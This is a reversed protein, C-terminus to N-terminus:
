VFFSEKFLFTTFHMLAGRDFALVYRAMGLYGALLTCISIIRRTNPPLKRSSSIYGLIVGYFLVFYDKERTLVIWNSFLTFIPLTFIALQISLEAKKGFSLINDYFIISLFFIIYCELTHILSIPALSETWGESKQAYGIIDIVFQLIGSIDVASRILITPAFILMYLLINKKSIPVLTSFYLPFLILAGRHILFAFCCCIFYKISDKELIFHLSYCFIALTMGQRISIFTNYFMLKYIFIAIFASWDEVFYKIGNFLLLYFIIAYILIFGFYSFHLTRFFSCIFLFGIEYNYEYGEILGYLLNGLTPTSNYVNEYVYVDSGGMYYRTGAMFIMIIFVAITFYHAHKKKLLSSLANIACTFSYLFM